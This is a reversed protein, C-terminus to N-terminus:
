ENENHEFELTGDTPIFDRDPVAARAHGNLVVTKFKCSITGDSGNTRQVIVKCEAETAIHKITGKKAKFSLFGPKDDDIITVLTKTDAEELMEGTEPQYLVVKFDKDPEWQHNDHLVIEVLHSKEKKFEIVEDVHVYDKDQKAGDQIEM